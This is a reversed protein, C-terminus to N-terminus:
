LSQTQAASPSFGFCPGGFGRMGKGGRPGGFGRRSEIKSKQEPTLVSDMQQRFEQTAQQLQARLDNIEKIKADIAAQDPDKQWRLQRLSFMADMLKIRLDRTKEYMKQQLDQIQTVQQDTLGLEQVPSTGNVGGFRGFGWPAAWAVHVAGLVLVLTLTLLLLKKKVM